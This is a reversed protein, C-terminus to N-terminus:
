EQKRDIFNCILDKPNFLEKKPLFRLKVKVFLCLPNCINRIMHNMQMTLHNRNQPPSKRCDGSICSELFDWPHYKKRQKCGNLKESGHSVEPFIYDITLLCVSTPEFEPKVM